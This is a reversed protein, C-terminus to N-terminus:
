AGDKSALCQKRVRLGVITVKTRWAEGLKL